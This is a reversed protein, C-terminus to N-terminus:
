PIYRRPASHAQPQAQQRELQQQLLQLRQNQQRVQEQLAEVQADRDSQPPTFSGPGNLVPASFSQPDYAAAPQVPRFRDDGSVQTQQIPLVRGPAPPYSSVPFTQGNPDTYLDAGLAADPLEEYRQQRMRALSNELTNRQVQQSTLAEPSRHNASHERGRRFYEHSYPYQPSMGWGGAVQSQSLLHKYNYPRFFHYGGYAPIDQWHGHVWNDYADFPYLQEHGYSSGNATAGDGSLGAQMVPAGAVAGDYIMGGGGPGCNRCGGLPFQGLTAAVTVTWVLVSM